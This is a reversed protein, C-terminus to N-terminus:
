ALVTLGAEERGGVAFAELERVLMVGFGDAEGGDAHADVAIRGVFGGLDGDAGDALVQVAGVSPHLFDDEDEETLICVVNEGFNKVALQLLHYTVGTIGNRRMGCGPTGM